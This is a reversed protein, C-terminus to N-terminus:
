RALSLSDAWTAFTAPRNVHDCGVLGPVAMIVFLSVANGRM